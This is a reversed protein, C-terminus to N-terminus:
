FGQRWAEAHSLEAPGNWNWLDWNYSCLLEVGGEAWDQKGLQGALVNGTFSRCTFDTEFAIELIQSLYCKTLEYQLDLM